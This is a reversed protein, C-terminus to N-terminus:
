GMAAGGLDVPALIVSVYGLERGQPLFSGAGSFSPFQVYSVFIPCFSDKGKAKYTNIGQWKTDTSHVNRGARIICDLQLMKLAIM